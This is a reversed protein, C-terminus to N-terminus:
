LMYLDIKITNIFNLLQYTTGEANIWGFMSFLLLLSKLVGGGAIAPVLPQFIGVLFDLFIAGISKKSKSQKDSAHNGAKQEGLEGVIKVVEDYVENVENGIIVQTQVNQRVGVVGDIAELNPISAKSDDVLNFRLRTSCHEMYEINEKGGIENIIESATQKYDM